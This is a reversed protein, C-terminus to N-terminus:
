HTTYCGSWFSLMAQLSFSHHSHLAKAEYWACSTHISTSIHLNTYIKFLYCVIYYMYRKCCCFPSTYSRWLNQMINFMESIQGDLTHHQVSRDSCSCPPADDWRKLGATPRCSCVWRALSCLGLPGGTSCLVSCSPLVLRLDKPM